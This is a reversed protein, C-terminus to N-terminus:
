RQILNLDGRSMVDSRSFGFKPGFSKIEDNEVDHQRVAIAAGEQFINSVVGVNRHDHERCTSVGAIPDSAQFAASVVVDGFGEYGAFEKGSDPGDQTAPQSSFCIHEEGPIQPDFYRHPTYKSIFLLNNQGRRFKINQQGEQTSTSFTDGAFFQRHLNKSARNANRIPGDVVVDTAQASFQAGLYSVSVPNAADTMEPIAIRPKRM